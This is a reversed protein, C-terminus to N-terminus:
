HLAELNHRGRPATPCRPGQSSPFTQEACCPQHAQSPVAALDASGPPAAPARQVLRPVKDGKQEDPGAPPCLCTPITMSPLPIGIASPHCLGNEKIDQGPASLSEIGNLNRKEWVDQEWRVLVASDCLKSKLQPQARTSCGGTPAPTNDRLLPARCTGYDWSSSCYGLFHLQARSSTSKLCM